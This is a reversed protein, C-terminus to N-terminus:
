SIYHKLIQDNVPLSEIEGQLNQLRFTGQGIKEKILYPGLWLQQFKSHKGKDEHSKDWKLVLDGVQFEKEGASKKDFWHKVTQQHAEFKSKTKDCIEELNLLTDIRSQIVPCERGQSQQTLQLSPLYINSPLVVEKGYVLFYPSTGISAKPTVCDAWLANQLANHWNRQHDVV